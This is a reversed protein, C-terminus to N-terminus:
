SCAQRPGRAVRRDHPPRTNSLGRPTSATHGIPDAPNSTAPVGPLFFNIHHHYFPLTKQTSTGRCTMPRPGVPAGQEHSLAGGLIVM